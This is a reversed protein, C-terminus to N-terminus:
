QGAPPSIEFGKGLESVDRFYVIRPRGLNTDVVAEVRATPGGKDFFGLVQMRYVQMRRDYSIQRILFSGQAVRSFLM